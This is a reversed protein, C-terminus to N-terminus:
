SLVGLDIDGREVARVFTYPRVYKPPACNQCQPRASRCIAINSEDVYYFSHLACMPAGCACVLDAHAGCHRCASM